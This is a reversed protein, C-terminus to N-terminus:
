ASCAQRYEFRFDDHYYQENPSAQGQLLHHCLRPIPPMVEHTGLTEGKENLNCKSTHVGLVYLILADRYTLCMEKRPMVAHTGYMPNEVSPSVLRAYKEPKM